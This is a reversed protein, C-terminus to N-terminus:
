RPARIGLEYLRGVVEFSTQPTSLLVIGEEVARARVAEDPRRGDAMVVGALDAHVAVAVVNMHAHITVWLGDAPANALADSMLDSVHGEAVDEDLHEALEPTLLELDLQQAIQRLTM